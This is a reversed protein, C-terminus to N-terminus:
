SYKINIFFDVFLCFIMIGRKMKENTWVMLMSDLNLFWSFITKRSCITEKKDILRYSYTM